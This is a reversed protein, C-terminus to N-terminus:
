SKGLNNASNVGNQQKRTLVTAVTLWQITVSIVSNSEVESKVKKQPLREIQFHPMGQLVLKASTNKDRILLYQHSFNEVYNGESPSANHFESIVLFIWESGLYQFFFIFFM